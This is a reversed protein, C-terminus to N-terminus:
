VNIYDLLHEDKFTNIARFTQEAAPLMRMFNNLLSGQHHYDDAALSSKLAEVALHEDACRGIYFLREEM